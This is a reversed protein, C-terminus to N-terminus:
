PQSPRPTPPRPRRRPVPAAMAAVVASCLRELPFPKHLVTVGLRDADDLLLADPFATMLLVPTRWHANRLRFVLDLGSGGPMRVDLLLLDIEGRESRAREAGLVSLVEDGSAVEHVEYGEGRLQTAITERLERDDDAVLVRPRWEGDITM